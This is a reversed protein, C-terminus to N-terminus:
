SSSAMIYGRRGSSSRDTYVGGVVPVLSIKSPFVFPTLSFISNIKGFSLSLLILFTLWHPNGLPCSNGYKNHFLKFWLQIDSTYDPNIVGPLVKLAKLIVSSLDLLLGMTGQPLTRYVGTPIAWPGMESLVTFRSSPSLDLGRCDKTIAM